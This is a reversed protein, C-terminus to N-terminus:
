KQFYKLENERKSISVTTFQIMLFLKYTCVSFKLKIMPQDFFTRAFEEFYKLRLKAYYFYCDLLSFSLTKNQNKSM